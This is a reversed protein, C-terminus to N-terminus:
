EEWSGHDEGRDTSAASREYKLTERLTKTAEVDVTRKASDMIVGYEKRVYTETLKEDLVNELVRDLDRRLPDGWGGGGATIHRIVDGKKM